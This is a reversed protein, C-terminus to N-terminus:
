GRRMTREGERDRDQSSRISKISEHSFLDVSPTIVKKKRSKAVTAAVFGGASVLLLILWPIWGTNNELEVWNGVIVVDADPMRFRVPAGTQEDYEISGAVSGPLTWQTCERGFMRGPAPALEVTDGYKYAAEAPLEIAGEPANEPANVYCYAVTHRNIEWSGVFAVDQAPMTYGGDGNPAVNKSIWGKFTYGAVAPAPLNLPAGFSVTEEPPVQAGEPASGDYSYTVKYENATWGGTITVDGDGMTFDSHNWGTFTYGELEPAAAVAVAAGYDYAAAEPLAPAGEPVPESYAYTVTYQKVTWSGVIAVNAAPMAFSGDEAPIEERSGDELVKYVTWGNFTYGALEPLQAMTVSEGFGYKV